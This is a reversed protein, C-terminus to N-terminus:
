ARDLGHKRREVQLVAHRRHEQVVTRCASLMCGRVSDIQHNRAVCVAPLEEWAREDGRRHKGESVAQIM